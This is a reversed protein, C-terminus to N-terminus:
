RMAKLPFLHFYLLYGITGLIRTLLSFGAILGPIFTILAHNDPLSDYSIHWAGLLVFVLPYAINMSKHQVTSYRYKRCFLPYDPLAEDTKNPQKSYFLAKMLSPLVALMLLIYLPSVTRYNTPILVLFTLAILAATIYYSLRLGCLSAVRFFTHNM